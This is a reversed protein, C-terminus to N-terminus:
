CFCMWKNGMLQVGSAASRDHNREGRGGKSCKKQGNNRSGDPRKDLYSKRKHLINEEDCSRKCDPIMHAEVCNFYEPNYHHHQVSHNGCTGQPANWINSTNLSHYSKNSLVIIHLVRKLIVSSSNVLSIAMVMQTIHEQNIILDFLSNLQPVSCKTLGQLVYTPAEIPLQNFELLHESM